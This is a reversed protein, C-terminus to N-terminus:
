AELIGAYTGGTPNTNAINNYGKTAVGPDGAINTYEFTGSVSVTAAVCIPKIADINALLQANTLGSNDLDTQFIAANFSASGETISIRSVDVDLVSAIGEHVETETGSTFQQQGAFKIRARLEDDTEATQRVIDFVAGIYDLSQGTANNVDRAVLMDSDNQELADLEDVYGALMKRMNSSDGKDYPSTVRDMLRTITTM